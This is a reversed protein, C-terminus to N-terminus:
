VAFPQEKGDEHYKIYTEGHTFDRTGELRGRPPAKEYDFAKESKGYLRNAEEIEDRYKGVVVKKGSLPDTIDGLPYVVKEVKHSILRTLRQPLESILVVDGTKCVKEPDHAFFFEDKKFYMNLNKDFEMRRIRIKSANKKICPMCQGLLIAGRTAM